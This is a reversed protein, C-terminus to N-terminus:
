DSLAAELDIKGAGWINNPIASPGEGTYIDTKATNKLIELIESVTLTPNEELILAVAGTAHPAAMSTGQLIAHLGDPDVRNNESFYANNEQNLQSSLSACIGAGPTCIDPKIRNDRTPGHSSFFAIDELTFPDYYNLPFDGFCQYQNLGDYRYDWCIKTTYAGVTIVQSASAPCAVTMENDSFEEGYKPRALALNQSTTHWAHYTGEEKIQVGYLRITWTGSAPPGGRGFADKFDFIQIFLNNDSNTSEWIKNGSANDVYVAGDATYFFPLINQGTLWFGDYVRNNPSIIKVYCRDEGSYWIDFVIFDDNDGENATYSPIELSIATSQLLRGIKRKPIEGKGHIPYGWLALNESNMNRSANGAAAIVIKGPGTLADIAQEFLTSGDHPGFDTGLSLNVVAPLSLSEAKQFIYNIADVIIDASNRNKENNFDLKVAIIKAKPAVGRYKPHNGAAIGAVHSGHGEEDKHYEIGGTGKNIDSELYESGYNYLSPTNEIGDEDDITQDWISSIRTSGDPNKFDPHTYDIGTDVIGIIVGEGMKTESLSLNMGSSTPVSKDLFRRISMGAEIKEIDSRAALSPLSKVPVVATMIGNKLVTKVTGGAEKIYNICSSCNNNEDCETCNSCNSCNNCDKCNSCDSNGKLFVNVVPEKQGEIVQAWINIFEGNICECLNLATIDQTLLFKLQADLKYLDQYFNNIRERIHQDDRLRIRMYKEQSFFNKRYNGFPLYIGKTNIINERIPLTIRDFAFVPKILSLFVISSAFCFLVVKKVRKTM